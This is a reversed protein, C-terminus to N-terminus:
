MADPHVSEASDATGFQRLLDLDDLTREVQSARVIQGHPAAAPALRGPHQLLLGAMLLLAASATLPLAQRLPMVVFPRTLRQWWPFRVEQEIRRYLRRDFDPSVPPAEWADLANWVATQDAAISRCAACDALHRELARATEPDLQRAAYDVLVELNRDQIPCNM